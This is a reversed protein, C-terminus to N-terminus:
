ELNARVEIKALTAIQPRGYFDVRASKPFRGHATVLYYRMENEAGARVLLDAQMHVPSQPFVASKITQNSHVYSTGEIETTRAGVMGHQSHYFAQPVYIHWIVEGAMLGRRGTNVVYLLLAQLDDDTAGKVAVIKPEPSQIKEFVWSFAAVLVLGVLIDSAVNALCNVLFDYVPDHPDM